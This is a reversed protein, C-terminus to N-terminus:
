HIRFEKMKRYLTSRAVKLERAAMSINGDCRDLTTEIMEKYAQSLSMAEDGLTRRTKWLREPIHIRRITNGQSLLLAREICNELERINGPWKYTRFIDFVEDSIQPRRIGIEQCQRSIIHDILLGLDDIRERLPPLSIEVVNLRYYLDERFNAKEVETLLDLNSASIVRVDVPITRTDGLRMIENQQLARLLKSQLDLPLGNIEDLFLTGKNALEFKGMMGDRRAGTFAGGRYGFLESEILDRPISACSIAVFPEDRRSSECHIAQAFLEKGTGSEGSILIRSNTRAAVKALEVQKQLKTNEGQIDKFEYKAYNGHIRKAINIAQRKQTLTLISGLVRGSANRIPDVRCIYHKHGDSCIFGTEIGAFYRKTELAQVLSDDPQVAESLRKGIVSEASLSLMEAAASNLNTITLRSDLAIVGETISNFISSLMLNLRQKEEILDRERLQTEIAEAAATVLALTHKHKGISKGSLNIVGIFQDDANYIPAASCTWAHFSVKYHEAGTIQIPKGESLCLGIGCTGAHDNTRLCGPAFFNREAMELIDGEGSFLLVYGHRESLTIIFGTGKVSIEMMDMVPKSVEILDKNRKILSQLESESIIRSVKSFPDVGIERCKQWSRLIEPRVKQGPHLNGLVVNEWAPKIPDEGLQEKSRPITAIISDM